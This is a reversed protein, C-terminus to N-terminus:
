EQIWWFNPPSKKVAGDRRLNQIEKEFPDNVRTGSSDIIKQHWFCRVVPVCPATKTKPAGASNDVTYGTSDPIINTGQECNLSAEFKKVARWTVTGSSDPDLEYPDSGSGNYWYCEEMTWEYSYSCGTVDPNYNDGVRTTRARGHNTTPGFDEIEWLQDQSSSIEDPVPGQEGDYDDLPCEFIGTKPDFDQKMQSLWYPYEGDEGAAYMEISIGFQKLNNICSTIRAARRAREIAPLLLGALIAIIAIVVLLEVLTFASHNSAVNKRNSIASKNM